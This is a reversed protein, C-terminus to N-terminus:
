GPSAQGAARSFLFRLAKPLRRRWHREHHAGRTDPRWLLREGLGRATLLSALGEADPFMRGRERRGADLYLRGTPPLPWDGRELHRLAARHCLWLSPSMVLAHDFVDPHHLWGILAALGGLSAGGLARPGGGLRAEVQPVLSRAVREVFAPGLPGLERNRAAGGHGIAVIIPKTFSRSPLRAAAEHAHWGGAYSGHDGFVNQGDFLYLKPRDEGPQFGPPLWVRVPRPAFPSPGFDPLPLFTM